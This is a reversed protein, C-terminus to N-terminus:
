GRTAYGPFSMWKKSIDIRPDNALGNLQILKGTIRNTDHGLIRFNVIPRTKGTKFFVSYTRLFKQQILTGTIRDLGHESFKGVLTLTTYIACLCTLDYDIVWQTCILSSRLISPCSSRNLCLSRKFENRTWSAM